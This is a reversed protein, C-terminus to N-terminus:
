SRPGGRKTSRCLIRQSLGWSVQGTDAIGLKTEYNHEVIRAGMNQEGVRWTRPLEKKATGSGWNGGGGRRPLTTHLDGVMSGVTSLHTDHSWWAPRRVSTQFETAFVFAMWAIAAVFLFPNWAPLRIVADSLM